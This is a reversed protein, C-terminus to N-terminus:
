HRTKIDIESRWISRYVIRKGLEVGEKERERKRKRKRRVSAAKAAM